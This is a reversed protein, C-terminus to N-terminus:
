RGGAVMARIAAPRSPCQAADGHWCAVLQRIGGIMATPDNSDTSPAYVPVIAEVTGLKYQNLYLHRIVAFWESAGDLWSHYLRYGDRQPENPMPRLNGFSRTAVAEGETGARSEMVFFALAVADDVQYARSLAVLDPGHGRLPSGYAALIRDVTAADLSPDGAAALSGPLHDGPRPTGLAPTSAGTAAPPRTATQQVAPYVRTVLLWALLLALLLQGLARPLAAGPRRGRYKHFTRAGKGRGARPPHQPNRPAAQRATSKPV